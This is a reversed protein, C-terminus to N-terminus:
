ASSPMRSTPLHSSNLRTSKRDPGAERLRGIAAEADGPAGYLITHVEKGDLGGALTVRSMPILFLTVLIWTSIWTRNM